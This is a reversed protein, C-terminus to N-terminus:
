GAFAGAFAGAAAGTGPTAFTAACDFNTAGGATPEGCGELIATALETATLVATGFAGSFDVAADALERGDGGGAGAAAGDRTAAAGTAAEGLTAGDIAAEAIAGAIAAGAILTERM